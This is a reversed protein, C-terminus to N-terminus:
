GTFDLPPPPSDQLGTTREAHEWSWARQQARGLTATPYIALYQTTEANM